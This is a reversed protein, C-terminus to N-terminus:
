TTTPKLHLLIATLILVAGILVSLVYWRLLGKQTGALIHHAKITIGGLLTYLKDPADKRLLRSLAMFPRVILLDYLEDFAWGKQWLRTFYQALGTQTFRELAPSAKVYLLYAVGIGALCCVASLLQAIWELSSSAHVGTAPLVNQLFGSFLTVHGLNHPLEIFGAVIALVTLISLPLRISIGPYHHIHHQQPGWFTLFVMRFTYLATLFAGLLGGIWLLTNAQPGQWALWLIADKSYFGSTIYPLAALAAAGAVFCRYVGPVQKRLGGMKFMDQEHHMALIVAGAGLFLLAKFFAHTFFHFIAAHWAGVGLALFMYGIQSITSYALVKKIDRQVLASCGALLLTIVGISAVLLMVQPSLEFLLHLRAILYVGATVMTAAHILASVPTPGAMADPLWTQLPLQASKGVAGGLLLLAILVVTTHGTSWQAAALQLIGAINLTQLHYFLMFLAVAMATDGIRTVIFAKRAAAGNAPDKYWFGILLYSCLGVGEWGLYLLLLNDALVLLLMAGVFLNMCAFFRAYDEDGQMYETAYIHILAGVFTIIFAFTISLADVHLSFGAQLAGSRIWNWLQVNVVLAPQQLFSWGVMLTCIASLAISGCGLLKVLGPSYHRAGPVLLLAGLFPFLPICAILANM